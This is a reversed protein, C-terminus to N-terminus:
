NFCYLTPVSFLLILSPVLNCSRVCVQEVETLKLLSQFTRTRFENSDVAILKDLNHLQRKAELIAIWERCLDPTTAKLELKFKDNM